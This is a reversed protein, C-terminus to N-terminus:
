VVYEANLEVDTLLIILNTVWYAAYLLLRLFPAGFAKRSLFCRLSRYGILKQLTNMGAMDQM